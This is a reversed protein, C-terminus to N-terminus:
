SSEPAEDPASAEIRADNAFGHARVAAEVLPLARRVDDTQLYVDMVGGGGGADTVEGAGSADLADELAQRRHLLDISPLADGPYKIEIHIEAPGETVPPEADATPTQAAASAAADKEFDKKYRVTPPVPVGPLLMRNYWRPVAMQDWPRLGYYADFFWESANSTYSSGKTDLMEEPYNPRREGIVKWDGDQLNVPTVELIAILRNQVAEDIGELLGEPTQRRHNFHALVVSGDYRAVHVLAYTGDLLPVAALQGTKVKVRKRKPRDASEPNHKKAAKRPAAM